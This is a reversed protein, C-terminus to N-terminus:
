QPVIVSTLTNSLLVFEEVSLTEARRKHDISSKELADMIIDTEIGLESKSLSNRLNKRRKGFAAKIVSFLFEENTATVPPKDFFSIEIVVSDVKPKPFFQNAGLTAITKISGCYQIVASLRGYDKTAPPSVIREALEKQFMFVAKTVYHRSKVLWILIQSSINYPLNGMIIIKQNHRESIEPINIKLIDENIVEVKKDAGAALIENKLLPVLQTDKEITYLKSAANAIPITLAGLGGGVELVIDNETIGARSVIMKTTAPNTLFNQGYKKKAHVDWATLLSRPATM